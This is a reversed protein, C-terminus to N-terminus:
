NWIRFHREAYSGAMNETILFLAFTLMFLLKYLLRLELAGNWSTPHTKLSALEM